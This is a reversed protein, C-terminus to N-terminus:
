NTKLGMIERMKNMPDDTKEEKGDGGIKFGVSKDETVPILEPFEKIVAEIESNLKNEDIEGDENIINEKDILRKARSVKVDDVKKRLLANEITMDIAKLSEKKAKEIIKQTKEDVSLSEEKKKRAEALVQKAEEVNDIGLEKMFKTVAKDSNKKSINNVDEDTYKKESTKTDKNAKTDKVDAINEAVNENEATNEANNNTTDAM